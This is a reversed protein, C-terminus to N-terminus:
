QKYIINKYHTYIKIKFYRQQILRAYSIFIIIIVIIVNFIFVNKIKIKTIKSLFFNFQIYSKFLYFCKSIYPTM